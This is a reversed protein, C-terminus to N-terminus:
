VADWWGAAIDVGSLRGGFDVPCRVAGAADTGTVTECMDRCTASEELSSLFWRADSERLDSVM